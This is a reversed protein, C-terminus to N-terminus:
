STEVTGAPTLDGGDSARGPDLDRDRDAWVLLALALIGFMTLAHALDFYSPWSANHGYDNRAQKIWVFAAAAGLAILPAARVVVAVVRARPAFAAAVAFVLLAAGIAPGGFLTGAVVVVASGAIVVASTPSGDMSFPASILAPKSRRPAPSPRRRSFLVLGICILAGLGSVALAIDVTRQPPWTFNIETRSAAGDAVYWGSAFGGIPHATGLEHTGGRSQATAEWGRNYSQNLRLWYPRGRSV